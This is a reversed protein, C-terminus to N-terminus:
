FCPERKLTLSTAVAVFLYHCDVKVKIDTQAAMELIQLRESLLLAKTLRRCWGFPLVRQRMPAHLRSVVHVWPAGKLGPTEFVIFHPPLYDRSLLTHKTMDM